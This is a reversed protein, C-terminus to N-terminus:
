GFNAGTKGTQTLPDNFQNKTSHDFNTIFDKYDM